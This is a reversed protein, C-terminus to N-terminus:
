WGRRIVTATESSGFYAVLTSGYLAVALVRRGGISLDLLIV